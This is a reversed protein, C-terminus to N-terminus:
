ATVMLTSRMGADWHAGRGRFCGIEWEGVADEPITVTLRASEGPLREVMYGAHPAEAGDGAADDTITAERSAAFPNFV